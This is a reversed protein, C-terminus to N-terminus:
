WLSPIRLGNYRAILESFDPATTDYSVSRHPTALVFYDDTDIDHGILIRFPCLHGDKDYVKLLYIRKGADWCAQFRKIEYPPEYFAQWKPTDSSLSTLASEDNSLEDILVDILAAAAAHTAYLASLEEDAEDCFSITAM